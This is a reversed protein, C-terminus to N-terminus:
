GLRVPLEELGHVLTSPRWRLQEPPVALAMGPFREVLRRVAVQGELRALSAGLCFHIGHGFGLHGSTDRRPDFEAADPYRREDRNASGLAVLVLEGAPIEVEGLRVPETTHRMTAMNVPSQHRLAEEVANDVLEPETRLAAVREPAVLLDYVCNGILNVTTEHGAVLLLFVMSILEPESLRDQGDAAGVLASILDDGPERRKRAVLEAIYGFLHEGASTIAEPDSGNILATTWEKFDGRREADVGLMESIITIPLPFALRELLDVEGAGALEDLLQGTLQEVRPRLDEVRRPTFGTLVLKRLRTHDPPDTNLMHAQLDAVFEVSRSEDGAKRAITQKASEPDKSLRPDALAARAEAYRTVVWLPVGSRAVMRQVPGAARMREYHAYPDQMFREDLVPPETATM